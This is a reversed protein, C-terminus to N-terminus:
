SDDEAELNINNGFKAYLKVKLDNLIGQYEEAKTELGSIEKNVREKSEELMQNTDDITCHVFVEGIQYPILATDDEAMLLEDGADELNQLDKKKLELDDKVDQLRANVRAFKNIKEQDEFTVEADTDKALKTSMNGHKETLVHLKIIGM